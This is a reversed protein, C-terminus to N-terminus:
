FGLLKMCEAIAVDRKKITMARRELAKYEEQGLWEIMLDRYIGHKAPELKWYHCAYCAAICNLPDYRTGSNARSWFHSNHLQSRNQSFDKGCYRCRWEDRNRIYASFEKDAKMSSWLKGKKQEKWRERREIPVENIEKRHQDQSCKPSCFNVVKRYSPPIHFAKGCFFCATQVGDDKHSNACDRSCFHSSWVVTSPSRYFETGCVCKLVKGTRPKSGRSKMLPHIM